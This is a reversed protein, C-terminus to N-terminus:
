VLSRLHSCRVTLGESRGKTRAASLGVALIFDHRCLGGIPSLSSGNGAFNGIVFIELEHGPFLYGDYIGNDSIFINYL